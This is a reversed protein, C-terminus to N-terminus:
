EYIVKAESSLLQQIRGMIDETSASTLIIKRVTQNLSNEDAAILKEIDSVYRQHSHETETYIKARSGIKARLENSAVLEAL